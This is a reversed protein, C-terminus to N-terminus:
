MKFTSYNIAGYLGLDGQTVLKIPLKSINETMLGKRAVKNAFDQHKIQEIIKTAIGGAIYIEDIPFYNLAVDGITSAYIDIFVKLAQTCLEDKNKAARVSITQAPDTSALVDRCSNFYDEGFKQFAFYKYLNILGPGSLLMERSIVNGNNQHSFLWKMIDLQLSNAPAFCTHGTESALVTYEKDICVRHAVGLGTGAGIIVANPHSKEHDMTTLLQYDDPSLLDVGYGNAIFDNIFCVQSIKLQQEYKRADLFWPLHTVKATEDDFVPGAVALCAKQILDINFEQMFLNIIDILDNYNQSLYTQRYMQGSEHVFLLRSNTGGIDGVLTNCTTNFM